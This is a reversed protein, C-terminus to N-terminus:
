PSSPWKSPQYTVHTGCVALQEGHTERLETPYLVWSTDPLGHTRNGDPVRIKEKDWARLFSITKFQLSKVQEIRQFVEQFIKSTTSM